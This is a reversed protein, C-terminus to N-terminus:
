DRIPRWEIAPADRFAFRLLHRQTVDQVQALREADEAEARLVLEGERAEVQCTGAPFRIRGATATYTVELRHEFHKCLQGLYRRALPTSVLAESNMMAM